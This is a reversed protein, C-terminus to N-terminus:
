ASAAFRGVPRHRRDGVVPQRGGPPGVDQGAEDHEGDCSGVVRAPGPAPAARRDLRGVHRERQLVEEVRELPPQERCEGDARRGSATARTAAPRPGPSTVRPILGARRGRAYRPVRLRTLDARVEGSQARARDAGSPAPRDRGPLLLLLALGLMLAASVLVVGESTLLRSSSDDFFQSQAWGAISGLAVTVVLASVVAAPFGVYWPRNRAIPAALGSGAVVGALSGLTPLLFGIFLLAFAPVSADFTDPDSAGPITLVLLALLAFKLAWAIAGGLALWGCVRRWRTWTM